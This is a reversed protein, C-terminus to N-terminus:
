LEKTMIYDDMVFGNGIDVVIEGRVAFGCKRYAAISKANHKNVNLTLTSATDARAAAEVHDILRGGIGKRQFEQLVYLKDLKTTAPEAPRYWAAFGVPVDDIRALVMGSGSTTLFKALVADAYGNELMYDIQQVSIIGPYHRHWIRHALDKVVALDAETAPIVEVV